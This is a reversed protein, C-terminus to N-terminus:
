KRSRKVSYKARSEQVRFGIQKRLPEPPPLLLPRIKQYLDRLDTDHSLLLKEIDALRKEMEAGKLLHERMKIFARVVFVSMQIAQSSNLVNATMIAGHETFAFPRYTIGRYKGSSTAFQSWNSNDGQNDVPQLSSTAIQSRLNAAEELTLQFVFDSPFRAANRGVQENLRKTPVGYIRALDCDLIVKQGRITHISDEVAHAGHGTLKETM